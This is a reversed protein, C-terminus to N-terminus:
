VRFEAIPWYFLGAVSWENADSPVVRQNTWESSLQEPTDDTASSPRHQVEHADQSHPM